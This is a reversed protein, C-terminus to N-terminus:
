AEILGGVSKEVISSSGVWSGLNVFAQFHWLGKENIDDSATVRRVTQGTVTAPWSGSAGSPKRYRIEAATAASVDEGVDISILTGIDGIQM